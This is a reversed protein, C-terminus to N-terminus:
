FDSEYHVENDRTDFDSIYEPVKNTVNVKKHYEIAVQKIFTLYAFTGPMPYEYPLRYRAKIVTWNTIVYRMVDESLSLNANFYRCYNKFMSREKVGLPFEVDWYEKMMSLYLSSLREISIRKEWEGQSMGEPAAQLSNLEKISLKKLKTIENKLKKIKDPKKNSSDLSLVDGLHGDVEKV